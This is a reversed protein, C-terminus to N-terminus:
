KEAPTELMLRVRRAYLSRPHESLFREGRETAEARRGAAVLMSVSLFEREEALTGNPFRRAHENLSALGDDLARGRSLAARAADLLRQEEELRLPLPTTDVTPAEEVAPAPEITPTIHERIRPTPPAADAQAMWADSAVFADPLGADSSAIVAHAPEQVANAPPAESERGLLFGAGGGVLACVVGVALMQSSTWTTAATTAPTIAPTASAINGALKTLFDASVERALEPHAREKEFLAALDQDPKELESM